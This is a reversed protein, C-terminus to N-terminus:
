YKYEQLIKIDYQGKRDFLNNILVSFLKNAKYNCELEVRSICESLKFEKNYKKQLNLEIMDMTRNVIMMKDEKVLLYRLYDEYSLGYADDEKKSVGAINTIASLSLNWQTSNKILAVKKGALLNKVDAISEAAAWSVIIGIQTLKIVLPMGTAGAIATALAFTEQKKAEDRLISIMNFGSRVAIIKEATIGLNEKDSDSGSIIYEIEYELAKDSYTNTYSGFHKLVYEGFVAHRIEEKALGYDKYSANESMKKSPVNELDVSQNSLKNAEMVIVSLIGGAFLSNVSKTVTNEQKEVEVSEYNVNISDLDINKSDEILKTKALGDEPKLSLKEMDDHTDQLIKQQSILNEKCKSVGYGDEDNFKSAIEAIENSMTNYIEGDLEGKSISLKKELMDVDKKAAEADKSYDDIKTNIGKYAESLRKEEDYYEQYGKEGSVVGEVLESLNIDSKKMNDIDDSIGSVDEDVKSFDKQCESIDDYMKEVSKGQSLKKNKGLIADVATEGISFIMYEYVQNEFVEGNNDTCYDINKIDAKELEVRTLSGKENCNKSAVTQFNNIFQNENNWLFMVGYDEHLEKAYMAFCSDMSVYTAAKAKGKCGGVRSAEISFFVVSLIFIFIMAVFVTISGNLQVNHTRKM